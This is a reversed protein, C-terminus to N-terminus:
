NDLHNEVNILDALPLHPYMEIRKKILIDKYTKLDTESVAKECEDNKEVNEIAM